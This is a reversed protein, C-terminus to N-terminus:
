RGMSLTRLALDKATNMVEVNFQYSRSASIMNVMQEVPDINPAYIYGQADALPHGPEFRKIPEATSELINKVRVGSLGENAGMQEVQFVPEKARYVANPDGSVSDVNALNSAVTSLRTSQAAIASGAVDFIGFQSM